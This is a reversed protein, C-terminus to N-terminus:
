RQESIDPSRRFLSMVGIPQLPRLRTSPTPSRPARQRLRPDAFTTTWGSYSYNSAIAADILEAVHFEVLMAGFKEELNEGFPLLLVAHVGCAHVRYGRVSDLEILETTDSSLPSRLGRPEM